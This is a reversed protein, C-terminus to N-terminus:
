TDRALMARLAEGFRRIQVFGLRVTLFVGGGLLVAVVYPLFIWDAAAQIASAM